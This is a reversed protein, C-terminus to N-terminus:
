NIAINKRFFFKWRFLFFIFFLIINFTRLANLWDNDIFSSDKTAFYYETALKLVASPSDIEYKREWIMKNMANVPKGDVIKTTTDSDFPSGTPNKNFANPYADLLVNKKQRNIVGKLLSQLNPDKLAFEIYPLVQNTSDRQWMAPIDGTIVFTDSLNTKPDFTYEVTTDLTNPFCNEFTLSLNQDSILSKVENIVDEIATSNFKRDAPSPRGSNSSSYALAVSILSFFYKSIM